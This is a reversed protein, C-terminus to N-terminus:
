AVQFSKTFPEMIPNGTTMLSSIQGFSFMRWPFTKIAYINTQILVISSLLTCAMSLAHLDSTDGLGCTKICM